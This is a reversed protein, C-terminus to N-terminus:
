WSGGAGGGGFGGGGFGGFGGGGFGGGGSSFGGFHGRHNNMSSLLFFATWFPLDNAKGYQRARRSFSLFLIFFILLLPFLSFLVERAGSGAYEDSKFEGVALSMLVDTAQDLGEYYRGERFHPIMEREVIMKATADPIAGELGYGTAIFVQGKSGATKPKLLIVIGNDFGKQGVGWKEGIEYAVEYPQYDELDNLTVIVIQNSTTDNFAVLKRELASVQESTLMGAFDNVLRPPDPKPPVPGALVRFFLPLLAVVLLLKDVLRYRM